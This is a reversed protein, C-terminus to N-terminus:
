VDKGKGVYGPRVSRCLLQDKLAFYRENGYSIDVCGSTQSERLIRVEAGRPLEELQAQTEPGLQIVKLPKLLQVANRM